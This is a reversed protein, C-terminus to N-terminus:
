SDLRQRKIRQSIRAPQARKKVLEQKTSKQPKPNLETYHEINVKM